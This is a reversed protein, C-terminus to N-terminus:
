PLYIFGEWYRQRENWNFNLNYGDKDFFQLNLYNM